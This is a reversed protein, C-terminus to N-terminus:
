LINYCVQEEDIFYNLREELIENRNKERELDTQLNRILQLQIQDSRMRTDVEDSLATVFEKSNSSDGDWSDSYSPSDRDVTIGGIASFRLYM